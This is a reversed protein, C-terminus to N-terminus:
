PRTNAYHRALAQDSERVAKIIISLTRAEGQALRFHEDERADELSQHVDEYSKTLWDLVCKFEPTGKLAHLARLTVVDPNVM